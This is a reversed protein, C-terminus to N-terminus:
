LICHYGFQDTVNDEKTEQMEESEKLRYKLETFVECGMKKCFRM